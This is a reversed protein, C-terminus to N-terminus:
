ATINADDKKNFNNKYKLIEIKKCIVCWLVNLRMKYM